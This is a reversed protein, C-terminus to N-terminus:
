QHQIHIDLEIDATYNHWNNASHITDDNFPPESEDYGHESAIRPAYEDFELNHATRLHASKIYWYHNNCLLCEIKGIKDPKERGM